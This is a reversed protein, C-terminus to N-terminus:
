LFQVFLAYVNKTLRELKHIPKSQVPSTHEIKIYAHPKHRYRKHEKYYAVITLYEIFCSTSDIKKQSENGRRKKRGDVNSARLHFPLARFRHEKNRYKMEM